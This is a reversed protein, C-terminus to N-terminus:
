PRVGEGYRRIGAPIQTLAAPDLDCLARYWALIAAHEAETETIVGYYVNSKYVDFAELLPRRLGRLALTRWDAPLDSLHAATVPSQSLIKM